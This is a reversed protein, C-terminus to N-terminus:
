RFPTKPTDLREGSPVNTKPAKKRWLVGWLGLQNLNSSTVSLNNAIQSVNAALEKNQLLKGALGKGAQINLALWGLGELWDSIWKGWFV